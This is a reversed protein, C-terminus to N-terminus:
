KLMTFIVLKEYIERLRVIWLELLYLLFFSAGINTNIFICGYSYKIQGYWNSIQQNEM